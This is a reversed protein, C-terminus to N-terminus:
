SARRRRDERRRRPWSGGEAYVRMKESVTLERGPKRGVREEDLVDMVAWEDKGTEVLGWCVAGEMPETGLNTVLVQGGEQRMGWRDLEVRGRGVHLRLWDHGIALYSGRESPKEWTGTETAWVPAGWGYGLVHETYAVQVPGATLSLEGRSSLDQRVREVLALVSGRRDRGPSSHVPVLIALGPSRLSAPVTDSLRAARGDRRLHHAIKVGLRSALGYGRDHGTDDYLPQDAVVEVAWAQEMWASGGLLYRWVMLLDPEYGVLGGISLAWRAQAETFTTVAWGTCFAPVLALQGRLGVLVEEVLAAHVPASAAAGIRDRLQARMGWRQCTIRYVTSYRGYRLPAIRALQPRLDEFGQLWNLAESESLLEPLVPPRVLHTFDLLTLAEPSDCVEPLRAALHHLGRNTPGILLQHASWGGLPDDPVLRGAGRWGAFECEWGRDGAAGMTQNAMRGIRHSVSRIPRHRKVGQQLTAHKTELLRGLDRAVALAQREPDSPRGLVARAPLGDAPAIPDLLALDLVSSLHLLGHHALLLLLRLQARSLRGDAFSADLQWPEPKRWGVENPHHRELQESGGAPRLLQRAVWDGRVRHLPNRLLHAVRENQDRQVAAVLRLDADDVFRARGPLTNLHDLM